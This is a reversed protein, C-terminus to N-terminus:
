KIISQLLGIFVEGNIREASINYGIGNYIFESYFVDFYDSPVGQESINEGMKYSGIVLTTNGITSKQENDGKFLCDRLPLTDKSLQISINPSASDNIDKYYRIESMYFISGDPNFMVNASNSEAKFESPIVPLPNRGFYENLEEMSMDKSYAGEPVRLKGSVMGGIENIYLEGKGDALTIAKGADLHALYESGKASPTKVGSPSSIINNMSFATVAIIILSAALVGYHYINHRKSKMKKTGKMIEATEYILERDVKIDNVAAKYMDKSM